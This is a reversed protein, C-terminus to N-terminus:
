AEPPRAAAALTAALRDRVVCNDLRFSEALALVTDENTIGAFCRGFEEVMPEALMISRVLTMLRSGQGFPFPDFDPYEKAFTEEIPTMIHRVGTDLSGWSDVGLRRAKKATVERIRQRWPSDGAARRQQSETGPYGPPM